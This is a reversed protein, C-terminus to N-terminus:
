YVARLIAAIFPMTIIIYAFPKKEFTTTILLDVVIFDQQLCSYKTMLNPFLTFSVLILPSHHKLSLASQFNIFLLLTFNLLLLIFYELLIELHVCNSYKLYEKLGINPFLHVLCHHELM